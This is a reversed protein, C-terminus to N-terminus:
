LKIKLINEIDLNSIVGMVKGTKVMQIDDLHNMTIKIDGVKNRLDLIM